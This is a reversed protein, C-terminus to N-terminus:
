QIDEDKISNNFLDDLQQLVDEPSVHGQQSAFCWKYGYAQPRKGLCVMSIYGSDYGCEREAETASEFKRVFKEDLTKQIIPKVVQPRWREVRTGYNSNYKGDCWELNEICNNSKDEDKHNVQPLNDPNPIFAEAVLRHVYYKRSRKGDKCLYVTLYGQRHKAPSLLHPKGTHDKYQNARWMVMVNGLNSVRYKGEYGEIDKWIESM